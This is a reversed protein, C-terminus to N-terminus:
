WTKRSQLSVKGGSYLTLTTWANRSWRSLEDLTVSYSAEPGTAAFQLRCSEEIPLQIKKFKGADLTGLEIREPHLTGPSM